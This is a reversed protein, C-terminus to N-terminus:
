EGAFLRWRLAKHSMRHLTRCAFAQVLYDQERTTRQANTCTPHRCPRDARHGVTRRAHVGDVQRCVPSRAARRPHLRNRGARTRTWGQLAHVGARARWAFLSTIAFGAIESLYRAALPLPATRSQASPHINGSVYPLVLYPIGGVTWYALLRLLHPHSLRQLIAAERQFRGGVDVCEEYNFNWSAGLLEVLATEPLSGERAVRDGVYVAGMSWFGLNHALRYGGVVYGTLRRPSTQALATDPSNLADSEM